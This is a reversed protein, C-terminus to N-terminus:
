LTGRGPREHNVTRAPGSEIPGQPSPGVRLPSLGVQPCGDMVVGRGGVVRLRPRRGRERAGAPYSAKQRAPRRHPGPLREAAKMGQEGRHRATPRKSGGSGPARRCRARRGGDWRCDANGAWDSSGEVPLGHWGRMGGSRLRLGPVWRARAQFLAVDCREDPAQGSRPGAWMWTPGAGDPAPSCSRRSRGPWVVGTDHGRCVLRFIERVGRCASVEAGSVPRKRSM